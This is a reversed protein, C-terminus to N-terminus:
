SHSNYFNLHLLVVHKNKKRLLYSDILIYSIIHTYNHYVHGEEGSNFQCSSKFTKPSSSDFSHIETKNMYTLFFAKLYSKSKKKNENKGEVPPFSVDEQITSIDNTNEPLAELVEDDTSLKIHTRKHNRM